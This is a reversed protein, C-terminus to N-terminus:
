LRTMPSFYFTNFMYECFVNTHTGFVDIEKVLADNVVIISFFSPQIRAQCIALKELVKKNREIKFLAKVNDLM